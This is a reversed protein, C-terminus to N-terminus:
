SAATLIPTPDVYILYDRIKADEMQFLNLAPVTVEHGSPLTYTVGLRVFIIEDIQYSGQIEHHLAKFSKFFERVGDRIADKGHIPESSGYVFVADDTLHDCFRESDMSDIAHFLDNIWGPIPQSQM